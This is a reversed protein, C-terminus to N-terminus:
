ATEHHRPAEKERIDPSSSRNSTTSTGSRTSFLVVAAILTFLLAFWPLIAFLKLYSIDKYIRTAGSAAEVGKVISDPLRVGNVFAEVVASRNVFYVMYPIMSGFLFLSALILIIAQLRLTRSSIGKTFPLVMAALFLFVLIAILLAAVTGVTGAVFIDNTDINVVTGPPALKKLKDKDSNSKILANLGVAAAIVAFCFALLLSILRAGYKPGASSM